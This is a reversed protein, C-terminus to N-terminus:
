RLDFRYSFFNNRCKYIFILRHMKRRIKLNVRSLKELATSASSRYSPDLIIRAAKNQLAQLDPMLSDNGQRGWVIKSYEFLPLILIVILWLDPDYCLFRTKTTRCDILVKFNLTDTTGSSNRASYVRFLHMSELTSEWYGLTWSASINRFRKRLIRFLCRRWTVTCSWKLLESCAM